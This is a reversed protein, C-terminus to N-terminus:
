ECQARSPRRRRRAIRAGRRSFLIVFAPLPMGVRRGFQLSAMAERPEVAIPRDVALEEAIGDPRLRFAFVLGPLAEAPSELTAGARAPAHRPMLPGGHGPQKTSSQAAACSMRSKMPMTPTSISRSELDQIAEWFPEYRPDDLYIGNTQHNIM